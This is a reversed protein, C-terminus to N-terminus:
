QMSDNVNQLYVIQKTDFKLSGLEFKVNNIETGFLKKCEDYNLKSNFKLLSSLKHYIEVSKLCSTTPVSRPKRFILNM